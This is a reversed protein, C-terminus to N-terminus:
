GAASLIMRLKVPEAGALRATAVYTGPHLAAQASKCNSKSRKGNWTLSWAVAHEAGLKRTIPKIDSPCDDTSWVRASGSNIKLEFNKRTVRAVCTQDSGNILSLQFTTRQEPALRHKGTLTARLEDAPCDAPGTHHTKTASATRKPSKTTPIPSASASFDVFSPTRMATAIPSPSASIPYAPSTAAPDPVSFEATPPNPQAASGSSTGSIILAAAVALVTSAGLVLGRRAWYTGATEPGVPRLVGSM